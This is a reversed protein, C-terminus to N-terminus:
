SEWMLQVSHVVSVVEDNCSLSTFNNWTVIVHCVRSHGPFFLTVASPRPSEFFLQYESTFHSLNAEALTLTLHHYIMGWYTKGFFINKEKVTQSLETPTKTVMVHRIVCEEEHVPNSQAAQASLLPPNKNVKNLITKWCLPLQLSWLCDWVDIHWHMATGLPFLVEYLVLEYNEFLTSM